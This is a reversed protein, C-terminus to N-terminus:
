SCTAAHRPGDRGAHRPRAPPVDAREAHGRSGHVAGRRRADPHTIEGGLALTPFNLPVECYLDNGDRQFFPTTRSTSSSTSTARRVAVGTRRRGRRHPAAAPRHRHRGPHPRHAQAGEARPRRRPLDPVAQRHDIRHRPVPRLHARRHLLGAPLPAPRAGPVAPLDDAELRGGRRQGPVDRVGGAASDPHHDRRGQGGGDFSIELDYRLDAGRQPGGRRRGGGFVDGFGFIDGLGGLIDEFGTFVTPISAARRRAASAPM